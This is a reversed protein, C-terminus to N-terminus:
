YAIQFGVNFGQAWFDQDHWRFAPAAASVSNPTGAIQVNTNITSISSLNGARAVNTLFLGDYGVYGRLWSTFQYGVKLNLEPLVSFRTRTHRGYDAPGALLGGFATRTPPVTVTTANAVPLPVNNNNINTLSDVQATQFNPGAALKLRLYTFWSGFKADMDAGVQVGYFHNYARIRDSTSYTVDNSLSETGEGIVIPFTAPDPRFLHVQNFVALDDRVELYRVGLLGGFDVCGYRLGVCRSNLEGGYLNVGSTGTVASDAQRIILVPFTNQLTRSGDANLLFLSRTFGTNIFLQNSPISQVASFADRGRELGYVMAEVGWTQDQDFWYGVTFRAGNLDGFNTSNAGFV